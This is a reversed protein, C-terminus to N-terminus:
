RSCGRSREAGALEIVSYGAARLQQALQIDRNTSIARVTEMGVALKSELWIGVVNGAAFGGAFALVLYWRDLDRFVQGAAMIWIVVELFGLLAAFVPYSRFVLITRLTGLSVDLIRALFIAGSLLWPDVSIFDM